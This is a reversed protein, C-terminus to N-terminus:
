RGWGVHLSRERASNRWQEFEVAKNKLALKKTSPVNMESIFATLTSTLSSLKQVEATLKKIATATDQSKAM